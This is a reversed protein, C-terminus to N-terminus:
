QPTTVMASLAGAQVDILWAYELSDAGLLLGEASFMAHARLQLGSLSIHGERLMGDVAPRQYNDNVFIYVPSLVLQLFTERYTKKMEFCLRELYSTPCDPGDNGCH